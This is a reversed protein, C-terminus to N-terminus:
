RGRILVWAAMAITVVAIAMTVYFAIEVLDTPPM